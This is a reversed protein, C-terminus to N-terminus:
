LEARPVRAADAAPCGSSVRLSFTQSFRADVRFAIESEPIGPSGAAQCLAGEAGFFCCTVNGSSFTVCM